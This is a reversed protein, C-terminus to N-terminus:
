KVAKKRRRAERESQARRWAWIEQYLADIRVVRRGNKSWIKVCPAGANIWERATSKRVHFAAAIEAVGTLIPEIQM